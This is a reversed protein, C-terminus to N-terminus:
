KKGVGVTRLIKINLILFRVIQFPLFNRLFVTFRTPRPVFNREDFGTPKQQSM